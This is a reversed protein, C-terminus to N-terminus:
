DGPDEGASPYAPAHHGSFPIRGKEDLLVELRDLDGEDALEDVHLKEFRCNCYTLQADCWPCVEVPCGLHHYEGEAVACAPCFASPSAAADIQRNDRVDVKNLFDEDSAYGFFSLVEDDGIGDKKEGLYVPTEDHYFYLYEYTGTAVGLLFVDHRSIIQTVRCVAEERFEPLRAYFDRLVHLAVRNEQYKELAELAIRRENEAVSYEIFLKIEEIDKRNDEKTIKVM